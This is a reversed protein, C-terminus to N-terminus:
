KVNGKMYDTVRLHFLPNEMDGWHSASTFLKNKREEVLKNYKTKALGHILSPVQNDPFGEPAYEKITEQLITQYDPLPPLPGSSTYEPPMRYIIERYENPGETKENYQEWKAETGTLEVRDLKPTRDVVMNRFDDTPRVEDPPLKDLGLAEIESKKVGKGKLFNVFEKATTKPQKFRLSELEAKSYLGDSRTKLPTPITTTSLGPAKEPIAKVGMRLTNAEAPVIGPGLTALGAFDMVRGMMEPNLEGNELYMPPAKGSAVDGPLTFGSYAARAVEPVLNFLSMSKFINSAATGLSDMTSPGPAPARFDDVAYKKRLDAAYQEAYAREQDSMVAAPPEAKPLAGMVGGPPTVARYARFDDAM